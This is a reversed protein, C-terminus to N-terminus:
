LTRGEIKISLVGGSASLGTTGVVRLYGYCNNVRSSRQVATIGLNNRTEIVATSLDVWQPPINAASNSPDDGAAVQVVIQTMAITNSLNQWYVSFWDFQRIDIPPILVSQTVNDSPTSQVRKITKFQSM